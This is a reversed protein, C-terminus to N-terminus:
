AQRLVSFAAAFAVAKPAEIGNSFILKRSNALSLLRQPTPFLWLFWGNRV